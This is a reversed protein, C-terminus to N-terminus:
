LYMFICLSMTTFVAGYLILGHKIQLPLGLLVHILPSPLATDFSAPM